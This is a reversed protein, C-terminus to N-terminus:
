GRELADPLHVLDEGRSRSLRARRVRCRGDQPAFLATGRTRPAGRSRSRVGRPSRSPIMPRFPAPLDVSSLSTVPFKGGRLTVDVDVALHLRQELDAASQMRLEGPPLVDRRREANM